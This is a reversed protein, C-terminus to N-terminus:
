RWSLRRMMLASDMEILSFAKSNVPGGVDLGVGKVSLGEGQYALILM